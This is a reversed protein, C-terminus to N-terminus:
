ASWFTMHYNVCRFSCAQFPVHCTCVAVGKYIHTAHMICDQRVDWGRWFFFFFELGIPPLCDICKECVMCLVHINFTNNNNVFLNWRAHRNPHPLTYINNHSIIRSLHSLHYMAGGGGFNYYTTIRCWIVFLYLTRNETHKNIVVHSVHYSDCIACVCVCM